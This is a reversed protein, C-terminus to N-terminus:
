LNKYPTGEFSSVAFLFAHIKCKIKTLIRNEDQYKGNFLPHTHLPLPTNSLPSFRLLM